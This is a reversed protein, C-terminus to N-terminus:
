ANPNRIQLRGQSDLFEGNSLRAFQEVATDINKYFMDALLETLHNVDELGQGSLPHRCTGHNTVTREFYNIRKAHDMQMYGRNFEIGLHSAILPNQYIWRDVQKICEGLSNSSVSNDFGGTYLTFNDIGHLIGLDESLDIIQVEENFGM